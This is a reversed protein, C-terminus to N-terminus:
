YSVFWGTLFYTFLSFFFFSSDVFVLLCCFSSGSIFYKHHASQQAKAMSLSVMTSIVVNPSACSHFSGIKAASIWILCLILFLVHQYHIWENMWENMWCDPAMCLWSLMAGRRMMSSVLRTVHQLTIGDWEEVVIQWGFHKYPSPQWRPPQLKFCTDSAVVFYFLKNLKKQCTCDVCEAAVRKLLLNKKLFRDNYFMYPIQTCSCQM